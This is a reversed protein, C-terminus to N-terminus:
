LPEIVPTPVIFFTNAATNSAENAAAHPPLEEIIDGDAGVAGIDTVPAHAPMPDSELLEIPVPPMIPCASMPVIVHCSVWFPDVTVPVILKEPEPMCPRGAPDNVPVMDPSSMVKAIPRVVPLMIDDPHEDFAVPVARTLRVVIVIVPGYLPDFEHEPANVFPWIVM